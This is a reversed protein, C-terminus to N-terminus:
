YYNILHWWLIAVTKHDQFAGNSAHRPLELYACACHKEQEGDAGEKWDPSPKTQETRNPLWELNEKESQELEVVAKGQLFIHWWPKM